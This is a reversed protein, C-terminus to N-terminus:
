VEVKKQFQPSCLSTNTPVIKSERENSIEIVIESENKSRITAPKNGIEQTFSREIARSNYTRKKEPNM